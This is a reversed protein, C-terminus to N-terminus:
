IASRREAHTRMTVTVCLVFTGLIIMGFIVWSPIIGGRKRIEARTGILDRSLDRTPVFSPIARESVRQARLRDDIWYTNAARNLYCRWTKRRNVRRTFAYWRSLGRLDCLCGHVTQSFFNLEM